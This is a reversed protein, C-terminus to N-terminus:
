KEGESPKTRNKRANFDELAKSEKRSIVMPKSKSALKFFDIKKPNKVMKIQQTM